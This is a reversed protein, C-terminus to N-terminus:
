FCLISEITNMKCAVQQLFWQISQCVLIHTLPYFMVGFLRDGHIFNIKISLVLGMSQIFDMYSDYEVVLINIKIFSFHGLYISTKRTSSHCLQIFM